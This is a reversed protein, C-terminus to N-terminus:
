KKQKIRYLTDEKGEQGHNWKRWTEGPSLNFGPVSDVEIERVTNSKKLKMEKVNEKAEM